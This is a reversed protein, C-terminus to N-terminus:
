QPLSRSMFTGTPMRPAVPATPWRKTWSRASWGHNSTTSTAAESREADGQSWAGPGRAIEEEGHYMAALDPDNLTEAEAALWSIYDLAQAADDDTLGSIM